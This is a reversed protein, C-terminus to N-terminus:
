WLPALGAAIIALGCLALNIVLGHIMNRKM